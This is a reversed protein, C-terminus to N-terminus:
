WTSGDLVWATDSKGDPEERIHVVGNKVIHGIVHKPLLVLGVIHNAINGVNLCTSSRPEGVRVLLVLRRGPRVLGGCKVLGVTFVASDAGSGGGDM